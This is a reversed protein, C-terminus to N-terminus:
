QFGDSQSHAPLETPYPRQIVQSGFDNRLPLHSQRFHSSDQPPLPPPPPLSTLSFNPQLAFYSQQNPLMYSLFSEGSSQFMSSATQQQKM